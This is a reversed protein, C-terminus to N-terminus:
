KHHQHHRRRFSYDGIFGIHFDPFSRSLITHEVHLCDLIFFTLLCTALTNDNVGILSSMVYLVMRVVNILVKVIRVM